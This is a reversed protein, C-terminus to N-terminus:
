GILWYRLPTVLHDNAVEIDFLVGCPFNLGVSPVADPQEELIVTDTEAKVDGGDIGSALMHEVVLVMELADVADGAGARDLIDGRAFHMWDARAHHVHEVLMVLVSQLALGFHDHGADEVGRDGPAFHMQFITGIRQFARRDSVPMCSGLWEPPIM